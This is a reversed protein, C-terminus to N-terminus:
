PWLHLAAHCRGPARCARSCFGDADDDVVATSKVAGRANDAATPKVAGWAVDTADAASTDAAAVPAATATALVSQRTPVM